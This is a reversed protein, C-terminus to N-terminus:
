KDVMYCGNLVEEQVQNHINDQNEITLLLIFMLYISFLLAIITIILQIINKLIRLKKNTM